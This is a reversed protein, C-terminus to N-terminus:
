FDPSIEDASPISDDTLKKPRLPLRNRMGSLERESSIYHKATTEVSNHGLLKAVAYADETADYMRSGYTKRLLHPFVRKLPVASQGFKKVLIEVTRPTMRKRQISLFLAQQSGECASIHKRLALYRELYEAAEDSFYVIAEKKGKRTVRLSSTKLDVDYINLGTLESVRIGTSLLTALIALDRVRTREQYEVSHKSGVGNEISAFLRSTEADTLRSVSKERIKPTRVKATPDEPILDRDYLYSSLSRIASLKRRISATDNTREVGDKEYHRLYSMYSDYFVRDCKALLQPTISSLEVSFADAVYLLFSEIDGLYAIQTKITTTNQISYLYEKVFEPLRSVLGELQEHDTM